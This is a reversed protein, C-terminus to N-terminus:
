SITKFSNRRDSNTFYITNQEIAAALAVLIEMNPMANGWLSIGLFVLRNTQRKTSDNPAFWAFLLFFFQESRFLFKTSVTSDITAKVTLRFDISKKGFM